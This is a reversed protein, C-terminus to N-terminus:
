RKNKEETIKKLISFYDKIKTLTPNSKDTLTRGTKTVIAISINNKDDGSITTNLLKIDFVESSWEKKTKNRWWYDSERKGKEHEGFDKELENIFIHYNDVNFYVM